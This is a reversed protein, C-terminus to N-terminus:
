RGEAEDARGLLADALHRADTPSLSCTFNHWGEDSALMVEPAFRTISGHDPRVSTVTLTGHATTVFSRM